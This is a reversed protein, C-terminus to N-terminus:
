LYVMGLFFTPIAVFLVRRLLFIPLYWYSGDKPNYRIGNVLNGWM